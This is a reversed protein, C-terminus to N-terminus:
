IGMIGGSLDLYDDEYSKPDLPNKPLKNLELAGNVYNTLKKLNMRAAKRDKRTGFHAAAKSKFNFNFMAMTNQKKLNFM